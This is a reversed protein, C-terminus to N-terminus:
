YRYPNNPRRDYRNPVGDGDRDFRAPHAGRWHREHWHRREIVVPEPQVYVPRPQVYVPAPQVYVPRPEVYVPRPEVYVPAPQVYVGPVGINLDVNVRAMAPAAAFMFTAGTILGAALTLLKKM